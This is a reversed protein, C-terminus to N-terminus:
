RGLLVGLEEMGLESSEEAHMQINADDISM